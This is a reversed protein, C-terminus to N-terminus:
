HNARFKQLNNYFCSEKQRCRLSNCRHINNKGEQPNLLHCNSTKRKRLHKIHIQVNKVAGGLNRNISKGFFSASIHLFITYGSFQLFHNNPKPCQQHVCMQMLFSCFKHLLFTLM